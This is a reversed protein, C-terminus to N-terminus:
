PGVEQSTVARNVKVKGEMFMIPEQGPETVFIDYYATKLMEAPLDQFYSDDGDVSIVLQNDVIDVDFEVLLVATPKESSRMQAKGTAGVVFPIATTEDDEFVEFEERFGAGEYFVINHTGGVPVAM